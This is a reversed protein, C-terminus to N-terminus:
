QHNKRERRERATKKSHHSICLSQWNTEDWFLDADGRHPIIHDVAQAPAIRGEEECAACLPHEMLFVGRARLWRNDYGRQTRTGRRKDYERRQEPTPRNHQEQAAQHRECRTARLGVLKPCGPHSCPRKPM